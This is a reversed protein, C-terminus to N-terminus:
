ILYKKINQREERIVDRIEGLIKKYFVVVKDKQMNYKMNEKEEPSLVFSATEDAMSTSTEYYSRNNQHQSDISVYQNSNQQVSPKRDFSQHHSVKNDSM